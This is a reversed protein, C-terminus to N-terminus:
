GEPSEGIGPFPSRPSPEIVVKVLWALYPLNLWVTAAAYLVVAVAGAPQLHTVLGPALSVFPFWYASVRALRPYRPGSLPGPQPEESKPSMYLIYLPFAVIQLGFWAAVSVLRNGALLLSLDIACVDLVVARASTVRWVVWQRRFFDVFGALGLVICVTEVM